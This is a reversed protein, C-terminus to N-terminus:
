RFERLEDLRTIIFLRDCNSTLLDVVSGVDDINAHVFTQDIADGRHVAVQVQERAFRFDRFNREHDVGGLPLHDLGAQFAEM